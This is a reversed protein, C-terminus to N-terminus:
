RKGDEEIEPRGRAAYISARLESLTTDEALEGAQQLLITRSDTSRLWDDIASKLFRWNEEVKKGPIKGQNAQREVIERPLRLYDAVEELTLVNQSILLQSM